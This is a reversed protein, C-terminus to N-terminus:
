DEIDDWSILDGKEITRKLKRGILGMAESPPIGTGPRALDIDERSIVQGSILQRNIVASKMYSFKKSKETENPGRFNSSLLGVALARLGSVYTAMADPELAFGHDPGDANRDLTIHKEFMSGGLALGILSSVENDTHDSLGIPIPFRKIFFPINELRMEETKAPYISVCHFFGIGPKHAKLVSYAADVDQLEAMGFSVLIPVRARNVLSTLFPINNHDMSAVKIIDFELECAWNLGNLGHVTTACDLGYDRCTNLLEPFWEKPTKLYEDFMKSASINGYIDDLGYDRALVGGSVIEEAEYIQFKACNFGAGAAEKVLAKAVNIDQNHNTGIEAILYPDYGKGIRPVGKVTLISNM